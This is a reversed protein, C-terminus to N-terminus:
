TTRPQSPNLLLQVTRRWDRHHRRTAAAINTEGAARLLSIALNRLTSMVRPAAGTRVQSADEGFSVDRVWHSRNEIGWHGRVWTAVVAPPAQAMDLDCILYVVEVTKKGTRATTTRRVQIVQAAHPFGLRGAELAKLTRRTRRGRSTDLASALVPVKAWPMAKLRAHLGPQNAKVTMVYHAGRGVIHEATKTQTHLADVTIVAGTIDIPALLDALLPIENTKAGVEVQGITVGTAHDFASLLHPAHGDANKAGRVTKGDAAIVRRGGVCTFRLRTWAYVIADFKEGDLARLVRHFTALSAPTGQLGLGALAQPGVDQAWAGIAAVSRAGAIVAMGALALVGVLAHRKGQALRPDPVLAFAALIERPVLAVPESSADIPTIPSSSAAPM